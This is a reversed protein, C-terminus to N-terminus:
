GQNKDAVKIFRGAYKCGVAPPEPEIAVGDPARFSIIGGGAGAGFLLGRAELYRQMLEARGEISDISDGGSGPVSQLVRHMYDFFAEDPKVQLVDNTALGHYVWDEVFSM